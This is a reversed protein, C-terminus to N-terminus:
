GLMANRIQDVWQKVRHETLEPQRDHDIALGVFHGDLVAASEEFNYGENPWKGVVAGGLEQVKEYLTFMADQFSDPYDRQDGLGYLAVTKGTLDVDDLEWIFDAWDDQLSGLGYTSVGLILREYNDMQEPQASGVDILDVNNEGFNKQILQGVYKTNGGSSGYFLGICAM